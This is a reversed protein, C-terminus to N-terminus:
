EILVIKRSIRSAGSALTCFYVGPALSRVDNAGSRLEMVKRGSIDLLCSTAQPEHSSAEPLFLVGRFVTPLCKAARVEASPTEKVGSASDRLVSISSSTYNAVYVRNQVPNLALAVPGDGVVITTLVVNTAGDTVTVNGSGQNACYVENDQPNYCLACPNTGTTVWARVSDTAGDIVTVNASGQNACYVKNDQPNYGLACPNTGATVTALVSDTAGDIV